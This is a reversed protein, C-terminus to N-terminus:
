EDVLIDSKLRDEIKELTMSDHYDKFKELNNFWSLCDKKNIKSKKDSVYAHYSSYPWNEIKKAIKHKIPNAHIYYVVQLLYRQNNIHRRQFNKEFLSGHRKYRKNFSKAYANFFNSFCQSPSKKIMEKVSILLHFHNYLMCYTYTNVINKMYRSYLKMFYYYNDEEKFINEGNIGRNFIHYFEGSEIPITYSM